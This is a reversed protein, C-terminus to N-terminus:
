AADTKSNCALRTVIPGAVVNEDATAEGSNSILVYSPGCLQDPLAGSYKGDDGKTLEVYQTSLGVLIAAYFKTDDAGDPVTFDFTSAEGSAAPAVALKPFAKVPLAPNSEPCGTIFASAITYVQNFSLPTEFATAWPNSKEAASGIWSAHRAEIALISAAATL